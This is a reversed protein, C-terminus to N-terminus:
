SLEQWNVVRVLVISIRNESLVGRGEAFKSESVMRPSAFYGRGPRHSIDCFILVTFVAESQSNVLKCPYSLTFFYVSNLVRLLSINQKLM